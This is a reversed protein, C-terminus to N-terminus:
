KVLIAEMCHIQLPSPSLSIPITRQIQSYVLIDQCVILKGTTGKTFLDKENMQNLARDVSKQLIAKIMM